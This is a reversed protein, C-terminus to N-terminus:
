PAVTASEPEPEPQPEVSEALTETLWAIRERMVDIGPSPPVVEVGSDLRTAHTPVRVNLQLCDESDKIKVL